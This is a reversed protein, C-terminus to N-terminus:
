TQGRYTLLFFFHLHSFKPCDIDMRNTDIKKTTDTIIAEYKKGPPFM